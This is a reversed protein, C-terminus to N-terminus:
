LKHLHSVRSLDTLEDRALAYFASHVSHFVLYVSDLGHRLSPLPASDERSRPAMHAEWWDGDADIRKVEVFSGDARFIARTLADREMDVTMM